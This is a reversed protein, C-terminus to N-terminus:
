RWPFFMRLPFVEILSLAVRKSANLSELTYNGCSTTLKEFVDWGNVFSRVAKKHNPETRTEQMSSQNSLKKIAV